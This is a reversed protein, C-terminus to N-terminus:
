FLQKHLVLLLAKCRAIMMRSKSDLYVQLSAEAVAIAEKTRGRNVLMTGFNYLCLGYDLSNTALNYNPTHLIGLANPFNISFITTAKLFNSEALDLSNM